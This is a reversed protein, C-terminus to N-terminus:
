RVVKLWVDRTAAPGVAAATFGGSQWAIAHLDGIDRDSHAPKQGQGQSSQVVFTMADAGVRLRVVAAPRDLLQIRRVGVIEIPAELSPLPAGAGVVGWTWARTEAPSPTALDWAPASERHQHIAATLVTDGRAPFVLFIAVVTGILVTLTFILSVSVRRHPPRPPTVVAEEGEVPGVSEAEVLKM